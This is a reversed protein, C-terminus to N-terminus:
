SKSDPLYEYDTWKDENQIVLEGVGDGMLFGVATETKWEIPLGLKNNYYKIGEEIDPVYIRFCDIKQFIPKNM